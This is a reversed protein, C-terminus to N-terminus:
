CASMNAHDCSKDHLSTSLEIDEEYPNTFSDIVNMDM